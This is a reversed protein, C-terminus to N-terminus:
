IHYLPLKQVNYEKKIDQKYKEMLVGTLSFARVTLFLEVIKRLLIAHTEQDDIEFEASAVQWYFKVDDDCLVNQKQRLRVCGFIAEASISYCLVISINYKQCIPTGRKTWEEDTEYIDSDRTRALEILCLALEEKLESNEREIQKWLYLRFYISHWKERQKNSYTHYRATFAKCCILYKFIEDTLHQFLVPYVPTGGVHALFDKWLKIFNSSNRLM